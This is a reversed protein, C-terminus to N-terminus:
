AAGVRGNEPRSGDTWVTNELDTWEQSVQLAEEKQVIHVEGQFEHVQLSDWVQVEWTEGRRLGTVGKIRATLASARKEMIEEQGGGGRPRALLRLAFRAQTHNLLARALTLGSEAAVMGLPTIQRVGLSARGM